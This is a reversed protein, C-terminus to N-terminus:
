TLVVEGNPTDLRALFGPRPAAAVPIDVGLARHLAALEAARPHLVTFEALSCGAPATGAPHPSGQWDIVFPLVGGWGPAELYLIRWALRVGDARTRSMAVPPPTALGASRARAGLADLDDSQLCWAHMEPAALGSIAAARRGHDAQAPDPGIVEFFLGPGLSLLQNRTGFGPHSGGGAPTVGTLAAITAVGTDLDPTAWLIHDLSPNM